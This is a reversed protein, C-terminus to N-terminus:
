SSKVGSLTSTAHHAANPDNRVGADTGTLTHEGSRLDEVLVVVADDDDQLVRGALAIQGARMLGDTPARDVSQSQLALLDPLEDGIRGGTATENFSVYQM